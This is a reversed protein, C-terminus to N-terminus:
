VNGFVKKSIKTLTSPHVLKRVKLAQLLDAIENKLEKSNNGAGISGILVPLRNVLSEDDYYASKDSSSDTLDVKTISLITQFLDKEDSSLYGYMREDVQGNQLLSEILRTMKASVYMAPLKLVKHGKKTKFTIIKDKLTKSDLVYKGFPIYRESKKVRSLGSGVQEGKEEEKNFRYQKMIMEILLETTLPVAGKYVDRSIGLDKAEAMLGVPTMSRLRNEYQTEKPNELRPMSTYPRTPETDSDIVINDLRQILTGALETKTKYEDPSIGMLIATEKLTPLPINKIKSLYNRPTFFKPQIQFMTQFLEEDVLKRMENIDRRELPIFVREGSPSETLPSKEEDFFKSIEPSEISIDLKGEDEKERDRTMIPKPFLVNRTKKYSKIRVTNGDLKSMDYYINNARLQDVLAKLKQEEVRDSTDFQLTIDEYNKYQPQTDPMTYVREDSVRKRMIELTELPRGLLEEALIYNNEQLANNVLQIEVGKDEETEGEVYYDLNQFTILNPNQSQVKDPEDFLNKKVDKQDFISKFPLKLTQPIPDKEEPRKPFVSLSDSQIGTLVEDSNVLNPNVSEIFRPPELLKSM